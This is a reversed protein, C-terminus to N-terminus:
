QKVEARAIMADIRDIADALNEYARKWQGDLHSIKSHELVDERMNILWQRNKLYNSPQSNFIGTNKAILQQNEFISIKNQEM